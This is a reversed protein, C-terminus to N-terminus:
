GRESQDLIPKFQETAKRLEAKPDSGGIMNTLAIGFIDRFETVPVIGPLASRAIQASAVLTQFWEKGFVSGTQSSPDKLPSTRSPVGAGARLMKAQNSKNTAWMLFYFAAQKNKSSEPIGLADGFLATHHAKPGAPVIGYGVKGVIKSRQPNELPAAFGIGDLWFAAQGQSFVTQCEAWNFGSSGAPAFESNLRKYIEAAAVADATDTILKGTADITEQNMGLLFTTWVPVNANKVGRSVFGFRNESPKHVKQCVKVIDDFNKPYEVGANSLIEKNYYLVWYDLNMPMMDLRGDRQKAFSIAGQGFDAVDFDPNASASNFFPTLDTFWRGRGIQRKQVAISAQAVDFSAAGSALEVVMKQRQQQEPIAEFNVSIGTQDEFEKISQQLLDSRPSKQFLVSIKTGSYKKWDFAQAAAKNTTAAMAVLASSAVGIIERRNMSTM